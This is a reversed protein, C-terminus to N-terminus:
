TVPRLPVVALQARDWRGYRPDVHVDSGLLYGVFLNLGPDIELQAQLPEAIEAFPRVEIVHWGDELEFAQTAQGPALDLAAGVLDPGRVPLLELVSPCAQGPTVEVIGGNAATAEDISYDSALESLPTGEGMADVVEDATARDATVVERLCLVGLSAPSEDYRRELEAADPVTIRDRATNGADLAIYHDQANEPLELLVPQQAGLRERAGERDADTVSEGNAALFQDNAEIIVIQSLSSRADELRVTETAVDEEIGTVEANAALVALLGELDDVSVADGGVTVASGAGPVAGCGTAVVAALVALVPRKM